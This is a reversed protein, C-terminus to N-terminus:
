LIRIGYKKVEKGLLYNPDKLDEETMPHPEILLNVNRITGLLDVLLRHRNRKAKETIIALDYDSYKHSTGKAQSGFLYAEKVAFKDRIEEVYERLEWYTKKNIKQTKKDM